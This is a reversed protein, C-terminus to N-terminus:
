REERMWSLLKPFHDLEAKAETLLSIHDYDFLNGNKKALFVFADLAQNSEFIFRKVDDIHGLSHDRKGTLHITAPLTVKKAAEAYDFRDRDIWPGRVWAVCEKLYNLSENDSGIRWKRSPLYGIGQCLLPLVRNWMIYVKLFKELNFGQVRRKSAFFVQNRVTKRIEPYRLLVSNLLVGGWSHAIWHQKKNPRKKRIAHYFAPIEETIMEFQGYKSEKNIPPTSEGKGRLDAVYVDFGNKALYPAFGKQCDSSYFIRGNEIAGHVLFAVAGKSNTYIHKLHLKEGHHPIYISENQIM